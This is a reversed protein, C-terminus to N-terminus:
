AETVAGTVRLTSEYDTISNKTAIRTFKVIFANFSSTNTSGWTLVVAVPTAGPTSAVTGLVAKVGDTATDDYFGRLVVDSARKTGTPLVEAWIDGLTQSDATLGEVEFGNISQVYQTMDKTAVSIVFSNSGYKAM